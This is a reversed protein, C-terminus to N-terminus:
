GEKRGNTDEMIPMWLHVHNELQNVSGLKEIDEPIASNPIVLKMGCRCEYEKLVGYKDM